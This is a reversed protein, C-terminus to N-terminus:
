VRLEFCGSLTLHFSSNMWFVAAAYHSAGAPIDEFRTRRHRIDSDLDTRFAMWEIGTGLAQNIGSTPHLAEITLVANVLGSCRSRM